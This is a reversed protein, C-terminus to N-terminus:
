RSIGIAFLPILPSLGNMMKMSIGAKKKRIM